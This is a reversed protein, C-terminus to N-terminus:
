QLVAEGVNPIVFRFRKYRRGSEFDVTEINDSCARALNDFAIVDNTFKEYVLLGGLLISIGAYLLNKSILNNM